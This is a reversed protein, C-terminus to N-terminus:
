RIIPPPPISARGLVRRTATRRAAKTCRMRWSGPCWTPGSGSNATMWNTTRSARRDSGRYRRHFVARTSTVTVDEHRERGKDRRIASSRRLPPRLPTSPRRGGTPAPCSHPSSGRIGDYDEGERIPEAEIASPALRVSHGRRAGSADRRFTMRLRSEGPAGSDLLDLDCTARHPRGTWRHSSSRASSFSTRPM